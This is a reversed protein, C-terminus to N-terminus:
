AQRLRLSPRYPYIDFIEGSAVRAQM